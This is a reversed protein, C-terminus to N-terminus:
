GAGQTRDGLRDTSEALNEPGHQVLKEMVGSEATGMEHLGCVVAQRDRENRNQSVKWKGELRRIPLEFGVIGKLLSATFDAPADSVKWPTSFGAEHRDTLSELHAM